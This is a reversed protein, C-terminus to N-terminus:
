SLPIYSAIFYLLSVSLPNATCTHTNRKWRTCTHGYIVLDPHMFLCSNCTLKRFGASVSPFVFLVKRRREARRIPSNFHDGDLDENHLFQSSFCPLLLCFINGEGEPPAPSRLSHQWPHVPLNDSHSRGLSCTPNSASMRTLLDLLRVFLHNFHLM